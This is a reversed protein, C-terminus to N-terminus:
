DVGKLKKKAKKTDLANKVYMGIMVLLIIGFLVATFSRLQIPLGGKRMAEDVYTSITNFNTIEESEVEVPFLLDAPKTFTTIIYDDLSLTIALLFGSLIGPFIDPIVVTFLARTQTAGLDMAAEYLSPDMQELKPLVSLVVYPLSLVVHGVVLTFFSTEMRAVLVFLVLLSLATVIEANVIPIQNVFQLSNKWWKRRSYYIGIAGLTGLLVSIVASVLAVLMTNRMATWIHMGNMNSDNFLTAYNKMDFGAWQGTVPASTFSFITVYILPAYMMLLVIYVFVLALIHGLKSLRAKRKLARNTNELSINQNEVM